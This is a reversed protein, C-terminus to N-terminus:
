RNKSTKVSGKALQSHVRYSVWYPSLCLLLFIPALYVYQSFDLLVAGIAIGLGIYFWLQGTTEHVLYWIRQQNRTWRNKLGLFFGFPLRRLCLGTASLALGVWVMTLTLASGLSFTSRISWAIGLQASAMIGLNLNFVRALSPEFGQTKGRMRPSRSIAVFLLTLTIALSPILACGLGFKALSLPLGILHSWHILSAFWLPIRADNMSLHCALAVSGYTLVLMLVISLAITRFDHGDDNHEDKVLESIPSQPPHRKGDSSRISGDQM